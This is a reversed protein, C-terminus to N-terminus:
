AYGISAEHSNGENYLLTKTSLVNVCRFNAGRCM